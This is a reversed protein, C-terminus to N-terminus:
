NHRGRRYGHQKAIFNKIDLTVKRDFAMLKELPVGSKLAVFTDLTLATILAQRFVFPDVNNEIAWKRMEKMKELLSNLQQRRDM